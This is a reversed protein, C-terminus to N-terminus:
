RRAVKTRAARLDNWTPVLKLAADYKSLAEARKGQAARM